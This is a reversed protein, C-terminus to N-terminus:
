PIFNRAPVGGAVFALIRLNKFEFVIEFCRVPCSQVSSTPVINYKILELYIVKM